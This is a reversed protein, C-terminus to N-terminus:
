SCGVNNYIVTYLSDKGSLCFRIITQTRAQHAYICSVETTLYAYNYRRNDLVHIRAM